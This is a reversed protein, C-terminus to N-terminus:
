LDDVEGERTSNISKTARHVKAENNMATL